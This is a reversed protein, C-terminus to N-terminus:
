YWPTLFSPNKATVDLADLIFVTENKVGFVDLMEFTKVM